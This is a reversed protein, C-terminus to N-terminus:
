MYSSIKGLKKHFFGSRPRIGKFTFINLFRCDIVNKISKYIPMYSYFSIAIKSLPITWVDELKYYIFHSYGVLMLINNRNFKYRFGRGKFDIFKYQLLNVSRFYKNFFDIYIKIFTSFNWFSVSNISNNYFVKNQKYDLFSIKFFYIDNFFLFCVNTKLRTVICNFNSFLLFYRVNGKVRYLM